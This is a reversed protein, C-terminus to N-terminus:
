RYRTYADVRIPRTVVAAGNKNISDAGAAQGDIMIQKELDSLLGEGSTIRRDVNTTTGTGGSLGTDNAQNNYQADQGPLNQWLMAIVLLKLALCAQEQQEANLVTTLDNDYSAILGAIVAARRLRNAVVPAWETVRRSIEALFEGDDNSKYASYATMRSDTQVDAATCTLWTPISM